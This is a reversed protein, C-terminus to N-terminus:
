INGLVSQILNQAHANQYGTPAHRTQGLLQNFIASGNPDQGGFRNAVFQGLANGAGFAGPAGAGASGLQGHTFGSLAGQGFGAAGSPAAVNSLAGGFTSSPGLMQVGQPVAQGLSQLYGAESTGTNGLIQSALSGLSSSGAAGGLAGAGEAAGAAGAATGAASSGGLASALAAM